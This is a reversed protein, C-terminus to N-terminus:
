FFLCCLTLYALYSFAFPLYLVTPFRVSRRRWTRWDQGELDWGSSVLGGDDDSDVMLIMVVTAEMVDFRGEDM